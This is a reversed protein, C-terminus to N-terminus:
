TAVPRTGIVGEAELATLEEADLADSLLSTPAATELPASEALSRWQGREAVLVAVCRASMDSAM